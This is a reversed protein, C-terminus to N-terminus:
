SKLREAVKESGEWHRQYTRYFTRAEEKKGQIWLVNGLMLITAGSHPNVKFSSRFYREATTYNKKSAMLQGMLFFLRANPAKEVREKLIAYARDVAGVARWLKALRELNEDTLNRANSLSKLGQMVVNFDSGRVGAEGLLLLEEVHTEDRNLYKKLFREARLVRGVALALRARPLDLEEWHGPCRALLSGAERYKRYALLKLAQVRIIAAPFSCGSESSGAGPAGAKSGGKECEEMGKGPFGANEWGGQRFLAQTFRRNAPLTDHYLDLPAKFELIPLQDSNVPTGPFDLSKAAFAGSFYAWLDRPGKIFLVKQLEAWAKPDDRRMRNLPSFDWHITRNSCVFLMDGVGSEWLQISPFVGALTKLVMKYNQLSMGYLHFWQVFVGDPELNKRVLRYFERTFLNSIGMLWPNSPESTILGFREGSNLLFNRADNMVFRVNKKEHLRHNERSFLRSAEVVAPEIEAAWVQRKPNTEALVRATVGSGLGIVLAKEKEPGALHPLLGLLIQTAMDQGNSADTKGNIQLSMEGYVQRVSVTANVGESHFLQDGILWNGKKRVLQPGYISACVDLAGRPWTQRALPIQFLLLLLPVYYLVKGAKGRRAYLLLGAGMMLDASIAMKLSLFSGWAPIFVFGTLFSGFIAGTTNFFYATGVCDAVGQRPGKVLSIVVPMSAGMLLTVPLVIVNVLLIQFLFIGAFSGPFWQFAKLMIAPLRSVLPVFLSSLGGIGVLLWAFTPPSLSTEKIWRSLIWSGIAIGALFSGLIMSFAYTSSGVVQILLRTWIVELSLSIFGSAAFLLLLGNASVGRTARVRREPAGTGAGQGPEGSVREKGRPWLSIGIALNILAAVRVTRDIGLTHLLVFGALFTGAVAGFTNVAYLRGVLRKLEGRNGVFYRSLVPFTAGM